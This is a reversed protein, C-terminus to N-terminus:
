LYIGGYDNPVSYGQRQQRPASKAVTADALAFADKAADYTAKKNGDRNGVVMMAARNLLWEDWGEYIMFVHTDTVIDAWTEVSDIKYNGVMGFPWLAIAGDVIATTSPRPAKHISWYGIGGPPQKLFFAQPYSPITVIAERRQAWDLADLEGWSGSIQVDVHVVESFVSPIPIEIFDEGALRSPIPAPASTLLFPTYGLQSVRSRLMRYARNLKANLNTPTHRANAGVKGDISAIDILQTRADDLRLAIPM